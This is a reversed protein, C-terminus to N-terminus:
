KSGRSIDFGFIRWKGHGPVLFLRGRVTVREQTDGTTTFVLAVRATAGAPRGRPAMVDVSMSRKRVDVGDIKQRLDWNTMLKKQATADRKAQETFSDFASDFSDRPYDVGVYGEDLWTDVAEGVQKLMTKRHDSMFTKWNKKKITGAVKGLKVSSVAPRENGGGSTTDSPVTQPSSSSDSSSCGGTALALALLLAAAITRSRCSVTDFAPL